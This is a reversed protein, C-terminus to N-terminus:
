PVVLAADTCHNSGKELVNLLDQDFHNQNNTLEVYTPVRLAPINALGPSMDMIIYPSLSPLEDIKNSKTIWGQFSSGANKLDVSISPINIAIETFKARGYHHDVYHTFYITTNREFISCPSSSVPIHPDIFSPKGMMFSFPKKYGFCCKWFLAIEKEELPSNKNVLVEYYELSIAVRSVQVYTIYPLM